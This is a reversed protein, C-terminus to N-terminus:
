QARKGYGLAAQIVGIEGRVKDFNANIGEVLATVDTKAKQAEIAVAAAERRSREAAEQLSHMTNLREDALAAIRADALREQALDDRLQRQHRLRLAHFGLVTLCVLVVALLDLVGM